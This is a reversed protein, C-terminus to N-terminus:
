VPGLVYKNNKVVHLNLSTDDSVDSSVDLEKDTNFVVTV